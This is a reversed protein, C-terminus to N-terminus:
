PLHRQPLRVIFEAGRGLGESHAAITGHHAEVLQRAVALGIGLGGGGPTASRPAVQAFLEFIERLKEPAIGIGDDCVRLTVTGEAQTGTVSIHGDPPTYKAANILLNTLIQALRVPDADLHISPQSLSMKLRQRRLEIMPRAAEVAVTIADAVDTDGYRLSVGGYSCRSIDLLDDVMRIVQRLQRRIIGRAVNGPEWDNGGHGLLELAGPIPALPNRLEHLVTAFFADRRDLMQRLEEGRRAPDDILTATVVWCSPRRDGRERVSVGRELYWRWEGSHELRYEIEYPKRTGLAHRWCDRWRQRDGAHLKGLLVSEVAMGARAGVLKSCASNCYTLRGDAAASWVIHPLKDLLHAPPRAADRSVGYDIQGEDAAMPGSPSPGRGHVGRPVESVSCTTVSM